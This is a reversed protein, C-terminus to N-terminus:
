PTILDQFRISGKVVKRLGQIDGNVLDVLEQEFVLQSVDLETIESARTAISFFRVPRGNEHAHSIEVLVGDAIEEGFIWIEDARAVVSNNARRILDRAVRDGLFYDFM